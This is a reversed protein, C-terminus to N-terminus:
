FYKKFLYGLTPVTSIWKMKLSQSYLCDFESGCPESDVPQFHDPKDSIAQTRIVTGWVWSLIFWLFYLINRLGIM